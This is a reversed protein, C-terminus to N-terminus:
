RKAALASGEPARETRGLLDIEITRESAQEVREELREAVEARHHAWWTRADAVTWRGFDELQELRDQLEAATQPRAAPDKALCDLVLRELDAAIPKGLRESPPTPPTHLHESCVEVVTDGPFVPEGTLLFYAVAGLAYLDARADVEEAGVIAEPSMYAPTGTITNAQTVNASYPGADVAKVLGFDLVKAVDPVGGQEVLMINAPKIDRHILGVGHAESLAGAVQHLIRIARGAPLPGALQVVDVLTGGDLMEMAYYFVGDPTRGYDHITVTNPHSLAATLQVEREFRAVSLQGARELPLLKIATPRRLMAHSALYVVGMAGEGLKKHLSYQGLRRVDRVEKRLGYIVRSTLACIATACIWWAVLTLTPPIMQFRLRQPDLVPILPRWKAVELNLFSLYTVAISPVAVVVCLLVTRKASRPVYASRALMGYTLALLVIFDPRMVLEMTAGMLSYSLSAGVLGALEVARVFEVSRQGRSCFVWLAFMCLSGAAHFSFSSELLYDPRRTAVIEILRIVLFFWGLSAGILGAWAVRRQVFSRMRESHELSASSEPM